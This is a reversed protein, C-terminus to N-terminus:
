ESNICIPHKAPFINGRWRKMYGDARSFLVRPTRNEALGCSRPETEPPQRNDIQVLRPAIAQLWRFEM